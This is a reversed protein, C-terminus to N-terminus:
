MAADSSSLYLALNFTDDDLDMDGNAISDRAQQYFKWADATAGAISQMRLFLEWERPHDALYQLLEESLAQQGWPLRKQVNPQITGSRLGYLWLDSLRPHTNALRNLTLMAIQEDDTATVIRGYRIAKWVLRANERPAPTLGKAESMAAYRFWNDDDLVDGIRVANAHKTCASLFDM